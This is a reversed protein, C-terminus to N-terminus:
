NRICRISFGNRKLNYYSPAVNTSNFYLTYANTTAYYSSSWYYAYSGQNSLTGDYYSSGGYVANFTSTNLLGSPSSGSGGNVANNLLTFEGTSGNGTPVHWGEPCIGRCEAKTGPNATCGPNWSSGYYADAHQMAFMWDYLYGANSQTNSRCDGYFGSVKAGLTGKAQAGSFNTKNCATPYKLDDVMWYRGDALLRVKYTVNNRTDTLNWTSNTAAGSCPNFNQMTATVGPAHCTIVTVAAAGSTGTCGNTNRVTVTYSANATLAGTSWKNATGTSSSGGTKTWTYTMPSTSGSSVTATLTSASGSSVSTPAASLSVVPNPNVAALVARRSASVCGTGNAGSHAQAYFTTPSSISRPFTIQTGGTAATWWTISGGSPATATCTVAGSGCRATGTASPVGPTTGAVVRVTFSNGSQWLKCDTAYAQRVYQYTGATQGAKITYSTNSTHTTSVLANNEYWRYGGVAGNSAPTLSRITFDRDNCITVDQAQVAVTFAALLVIILVVIRTKM